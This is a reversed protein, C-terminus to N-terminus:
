EVGARDNERPGAAMRLRAENWLPEVHALVADVDDHTVIQNGRFALQYQQAIPRLADTSDSDLRGQNLLTELLDDREIWQLIEQDALVAVVCVAAEYTASLRTWASVGRVGADRIATQACELLEQIRSVNM